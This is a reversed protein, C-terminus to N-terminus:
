LYTPVEVSGSSKIEDLLALAQEPRGSKDCANLAANYVVVNPEVGATRMASLLSLALDAQGAKGCAAILAGFIVVDPEINEQRMQEYLAVARRWDGARGFASIGMSFEKVNQPTLKALLEEVEESSRAQRLKRRHVERGTVKGRGGRGGGRGRGRGPFGPQATGGASLAVFSRTFQAAPPPQVALRLPSQLSHAM